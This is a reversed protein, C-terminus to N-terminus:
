AHIEMFGTLNHMVSTDMHGHINSSCSSTSIKAAMLRMSGESVNKHKVEKFVNRPPIRSRPSVSVEKKEARELCLGCKLAGYGLVSKKGAGSSERCFGAKLLGTPAFTLGSLVRNINAGTSCQLAPKRLSPKSASSTLTFRHRSLAPCFSVQKEETM